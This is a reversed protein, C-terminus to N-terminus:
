KYEYENLLYRFCFIIVLTDYEYVGEGALNFVSIESFFFFNGSFFLFNM